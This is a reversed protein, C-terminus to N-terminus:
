KPEVFYNNVPVKRGRGEFIVAPAGVDRGLDNTYVWTITDGPNVRYVAPGESPFTNNVKYLWGSLPGNDLQALNNISTVYTGAGSGSTQFALRNAQLGKVSASLATENADISVNTPSAIVTTGGPGLVEFTVSTSPDIRTNTESNRFSSSANKNLLLYAAAAAAALAPIAM